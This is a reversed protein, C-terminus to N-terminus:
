PVLTSHLLFENRRCQTIIVNPIKKEKVKAKKGREQTTTNYFPETCVTSQSSLVSLDIKM